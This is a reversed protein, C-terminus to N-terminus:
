HCQGSPPSCGEQRRPLNPTALLGVNGKTTSLIFITKENSLDIQAAENALFVSLITAKELDTYNNKSSIKAFEDRLRERDILSAMFPEPLDFTGIDYHKVGSIGQKVSNFNEETTFGLSSIINDAIKYM